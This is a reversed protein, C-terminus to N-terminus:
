QFRRPIVSSELRVPKNNVTARMTFRIKWIESPDAVPTAITDGAMKFYTFLFASLGEVMSQGNKSLVGNAYSFVIHESDPNFFNLETSSASVIDNTGQLDRLSKDLIKMSIRSTQVMDMRDSVFSFMNVGWLLMSALVGAIIGLMTIVLILELLSYARQRAFSAQPPAAKCSIM